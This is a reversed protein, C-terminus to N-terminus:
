KLIITAVDDVEWFEQRDFNDKGSRGCNFGTLGSLSVIVRPM